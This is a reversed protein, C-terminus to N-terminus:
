LWIMPEKLRYWFFQVRKRKECVGGSSGSIHSSSDLFRFLAENLRRQQASFVEPSLHRPLSPVMSLSGYVKEETFVYESYRIPMTDVPDRIMKQIKLHIGLM